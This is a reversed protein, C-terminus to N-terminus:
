GELWFLQVIKDKAGAVTRKIDKSINTFKESAEKSSAWKVVKHRFGGRSLGEVGQRDQHV